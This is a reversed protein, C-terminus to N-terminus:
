FRGRPGGNEVFDALKSRQADNLLANFELIKQTIFPKMDEMRERHRDFIEHVTDETLENNRVLSAIYAHQDKREERHERMRAVVDDRIRDLHQKQEQTFDLESAIVYTAFKMKQEPDGGAHPGRCSVLSAVLMGGLLVAAATRKIIKM